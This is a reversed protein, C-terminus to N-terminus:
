RLRLTYSSLCSVRFPGWTTYSGDRFDARAYLITPGAIAWTYLEGYPAMTGKFRGDVYTKIYLDTYNDFMVDCTSQGRAAEGTKSAPRVAGSAKGTENVASDDKINPDAGRAKETSMTGKAEQDPKRSSQTSASVPLVLAVLIALAAVRVSLRIAQKM